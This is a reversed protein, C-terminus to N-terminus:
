FELSLRNTIIDYMDKLLFPDFLNKLSMHNKSSWTM